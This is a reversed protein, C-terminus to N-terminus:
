LLKGGCQVYHDLLPQLRNEHQGAYGAGPLSAWLNKCRFIAQPINGQEILQIAGREAILQLAWRDQSVPGFDPLHLMNKYYMWDRKMFQYRGSATSYLGSSNIKKAPRNNAFPHQSMDTFLEPVGDAGTVIVDYGDQNTTPHKGYCTGESFSLMDLYAKQNPTM